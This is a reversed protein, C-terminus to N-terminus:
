QAREAQVRRDVVLQQAARRMLALRHTLPPAAALARAESLPLWAAYARYYTM